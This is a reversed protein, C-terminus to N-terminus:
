TLVAAAPVRLLTSQGHLLGGFGWLLRARTCYTHGMLGHQRCAFAFLCSMCLAGAICLAAQEGTVHTGNMNCLRQRGQPADLGEQQQRLTLLVCLCGLRLCDNHTCPVM